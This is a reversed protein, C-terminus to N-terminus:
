PNHYLNILKILKVLKCVVTFEVSCPEIDFSGEGSKITYTYSIKHSGVGFFSPSKKDPEVKTSQVNIELNKKCTFSPKIWHVLHKTKGPKIYMDGVGVNHCSCDGLRPLNFINLQISPM